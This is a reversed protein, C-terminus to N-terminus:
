RARMMALEHMYSGPVPASQREAARLASLEAARAAARVRAGADVADVRARHLESVRAAYVERDEAGRIEPENCLDWLADIAKTAPALEGVGAALAAIAKEARKVAREFRQQATLM